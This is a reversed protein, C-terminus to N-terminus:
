ELVPSILVEKTKLSTLLHLLESQFLIHRSYSSYEKTNGQYLGM